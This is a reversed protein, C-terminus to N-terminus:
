DVCGPPARITPVRRAETRHIPPPHLHQAEVCDSQAHGPEGGPAPVSLARLHWLCTPSAGAQHGCRPVTHTVISVASSDWSDHPCLSPRLGLTRFTSVPRKRGRGREQRIKSILGSHTILLRRRNRPLGDTASILGSWLHSCHVRIKPRDCFVFSNEM